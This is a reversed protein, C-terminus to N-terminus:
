GCCCGGCGGGFGCVCGGCDSGASPALAEELVELDSFDVVELSLENMNTRRKTKRDWM